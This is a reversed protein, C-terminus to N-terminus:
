FSAARLKMKWALTCYLMEVTAYLNELVPLDRNTRPLEIRAIKKEYGFYALIDETSARLKFYDSFILPQEPSIVKKKV